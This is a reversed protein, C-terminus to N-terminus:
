NGSHQDADMSEFEHSMDLGDSIEMDFTPSDPDATNELSGYTNTLIQVPVGDYQGIFETSGAISGNGDSMTLLSFMAEPGESNVMGEAVLPSREDELPDIPEGAAVHMIAAGQTVVDAAFYFGAPHAFRTYLTEYDNKSLGTKLLVSFIQFRKDDQIYRFSEYGFESEGVIFMNKKPYVVEVEEGFFAFFFQEISLQTGKARYFNALLRAMMRPEQFFSSSQLGNGIEGFIKDLDELDTSSINRIQFLEHIKSAFEANQEAHEYYRELFAVLKPYDEQFFEPLIEKVLGKHFEANRRYQDIRFNAM